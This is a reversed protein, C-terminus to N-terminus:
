MFKEIHKLVKQRAEDLLGIKYATRTKLHWKTSFSYMDDDFIIDMMYRMVVYGCETSGPQKPSGKNVPPLPDIDVCDVDVQLEKAAKLKLIITADQLQEEEQLGINKECSEKDSVPSLLNSKSMLAKLEAM